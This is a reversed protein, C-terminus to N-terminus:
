TALPISVDHPNCESLHRHLVSPISCSARSLWAQKLILEAGHDFWTSTQKKGCMVTQSSPIHFPLRRLGASHSDKAFSDRLSLHSFSRPKIFPLLLNGDGNSQMEEDAIEPGFLCLKTCVDGKLVQSAVILIALRDVTGYNPEFYTEDLERLCSWRADVQVAQSFQTWDRLIASIIIHIDLKTEYMGHIPIQPKAQNILQEIQDWLRKQNVEPLPPIMASVTTDELTEPAWHSSDEQINHIPGDSILADFADLDEVCPYSTTDAQVRGSASSPVTNIATSADLNAQTSGTSDESRRTLHGFDELDAQIIGQIQLMRTRHRLNRRENEDREKMLEALFVSEKDQQLLQVREELRQLNERDRKRKRQQCIRDMERKRTRRSEM